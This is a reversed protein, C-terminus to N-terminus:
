DARQYFAIGFSGTDRHGIGATVRAGAPVWLGSMAGRGDSFGSGATPMGTASFRVNTRGHTHWAMEAVSQRGIPGLHVPAGEPSSHTSSIQWDHGEDEVFEDVRYGGLAREPLPGYLGVRIELGPAAAASLPTTAKVGTTAWARMTVARRAHDFRTGTGGSSGPDFTDSDNCSGATREHGNFSIHLAAGKPLGSCSFRIAIDGTPAAFTTSVDSQGRDGIVAGLLPAGAVNKRFTIGDKTYGPPAEDTLAYTAVGVTGQGAAVRLVGSEGAPLAVFDGFRTAQSHWIEGSPLVFRVATTDQLTWSLLRPRSSAPIKVTGHGAVTDSWGDAGYTYSLSTMAAPAQVGLVVPAPDSPSRQLSITGVTAAVVLALAGTGLARRRRRVVAVRHHVATARVVTDEDTVREAHEGLTHRLDTLTNM